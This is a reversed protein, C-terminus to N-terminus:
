GGSAQFCTGGEKLQFDEGGVGSRKGMGNRKDGGGEGAGYTQGGRGQGRGKSRPDLTNHGSDLSFKSFNWM